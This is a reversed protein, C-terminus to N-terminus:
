TNIRDKIQEMFEAFKEVLYKYDKNSQKLDEKHDEIIKLISNDKENIMKQYYEDREKLQKQSSKYMFVIASSLGVIASILYGTVTIQVLLTNM